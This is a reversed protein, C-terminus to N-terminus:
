GRGKTMDARAALEAQTPMGYATATTDHLLVVIDRVRDSFATASEGPQPYMPSGFVIHVPPRGAKWRQASAPWAAYSGILAAPVIPAVNSIALAASGPHFPGMAGTRSRTGEPFILLPVGQGLLRGALGHRQRETMTTAEQSARQVPFANFFMQTPGALYWHKFFYDAAAGTAMRNSLRVPMGGFLLPTDLHSCHNSVLIFPQDTQLVDFHEAGHIEVRLLSWVFPKMLLIQAGSRFTRTFLNNYRSTGPAKDPISDPNSTM